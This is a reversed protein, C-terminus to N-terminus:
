ETPPIPPMGSNYSGPLTTSERPYSSKVSISRGGEKDEETQARVSNNFLESAYTIIIDESSNSPCNKLAQKVFFNWKKSSECAIVRNNSDIPLKKKVMEFLENWIEESANIKPRKQANEQQQQQEVLFNEVCMNYVNLDVTVGNNLTKRQGTPAVGIKKKSSFKM